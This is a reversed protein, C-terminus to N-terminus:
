SPRYLYTQHSIAHVPLKLTLVIKSNQMNSKMSKVRNCEFHGFSWLTKATSLATSNFLKVIQYCNFKNLASNSIIKFHINERLLNLVTYVEPHLQVFIGFVGIEIRIQPFTHTLSPILKLKRINRLTYVVTPQTCLGWFPNM